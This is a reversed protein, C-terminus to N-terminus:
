LTGKSKIYTIAEELSAIEILGGFIEIFIKLTDADQYVTFGSLESIKILKSGTAKMKLKWQLTM